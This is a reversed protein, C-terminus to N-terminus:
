TRIVYKRMEEKGSMEYKEEVRGYNDEVNASSM